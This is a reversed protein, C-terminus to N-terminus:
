SSRWYKKEANWNWYGLLHFLLCKHSKLATKLFRRPIPFLLPVCFKHLNSIEHRWQIQWHKWFSKLTFRFKKHVLCPGFRDVAGMVTIPQRCHKGRLTTWSFPLCQWFDWQRLPTTSVNPCQNASYPVESPGSHNWVSQIHTWTIRKIMRSWKTGNLIKLPGRNWLGTM